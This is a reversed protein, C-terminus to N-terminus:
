ENERKINNNSKDYNSKLNHNENELEKYKKVIDNYKNELLKYNNQHDLYKQKIEKLESNIQENKNKENIENKEALRM